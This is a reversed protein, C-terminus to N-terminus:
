RAEMTSMGQGGQGQDGAGSQPQLFFGGPRVTSGQDAKAPMQHQHRLPIPRRAAELQVACLDCEASRQDPTALLFAAFLAAFLAAAFVAAVCEALDRRRIARAIERERENMTNFYTEM